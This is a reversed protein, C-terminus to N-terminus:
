LTPGECPAAKFQVQRVALAPVLNGQGLITFNFLELVQNKEKEYIGM